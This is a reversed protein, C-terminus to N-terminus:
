AAMEELYEEEDNVAQQAAQKTKDIIEYDSFKTIKWWDLSWSHSVNWSLMNDLYKDMLVESEWHLHWHELEAYDIAKAMDLIDIGNKLFFRWISSTKERLAVLVDKRSGHSEILAAMMQGLMDKLIKRRHTEGYESYKGKTIANFEEKIEEWMFAWVDHNRFGWSQGMEMNKAAKYVHMGSTWKHKFSDTMWEKVTFDADANVLERFQNYYTKFTSNWEKQQWNEEHEDKEVFILKNLYGDEDTNWDNLFFLSRTLVKGYTDFFKITDDIKKSESVWSKKMNDYISQAAKWMGSYKSGTRAEIRKSLELITDNLINLDSTYSMFRTLPILLGQGQFGKLADSIKLSDFDYAIGSFAMVFPIKTMEEMTWWKKIVNEAWGIANPYTWGELENIGWDIRWQITREDASDTRGTEIEEEKWTARIRKVDKHIRSRREIGNYWWPKCQKVLLVYVLKEENFNEDSDEQEQKIQNYLKDWVKWGLATYWLFTGKYKQLWKKAYLTGYKELMFQVGASKKYQPADKNLLWKEIMLTAISSDVAKLKELYADENKKQAQEVRSKLDAKIDAPLFKGFVSQAFLASHEANWEKLYEEFSEIWQKFWMVIESISLNNFLKSMMSNHQWEPWESHKKSIDEAEKLSRPVLKNEVIYAHFFALSVTQSWKYVTYEDHRVKDEQWKVEKKTSKLKWYSFNVRTGDISNIKIMEESEWPLAALFPYSIKLDEKGQKKKIANHKFQFGWWSKWVKEDWQLEGMLESFDWNFKSTRKGKKEKFIKHFEQYSWKEESWNFNKIVIENDSMWTITFIGYNKRDKSDGLQFTTWMEMWFKAGAEDVKNIQKLLAEKNFVKAEEIQTDFGQRWVDEQILRDIQNNSYKRKWFSNKESELKKRLKKSYEDRDNAIKDYNINAYGEEDMKYDSTPMETPTLVQIKTVAMATDSDWFANDVWGWKTILGAFKQYSLTEVEWVLKEDYEEEWKSRFKIVGKKDDLDVIELFRVSSNSDQKGYEWKKTVSQTLAIVNWKRLKLLSESDLKKSKELEKKFWAVDKKGSEEVNSIIRDFEKAAKQLSEWESSVLKLAQKWTKVLESTPVIFDKNSFSNVIRKVKIEDVPEPNDNAQLWQAIANIKFEKAASKSLLKLKLAEELTITPIFINVFEVKEEDNFIDTGFIWSNVFLGQIDTVSFKYGKELKDLFQAVTDKDESSLKPYKKALNFKELHELINKKDIKKWFIEELKSSQLSDSDIYDQLDQKELKEIEIAVIQDYKAPSLDYNWLIKKRLEQRKNNLIVTEKTMKSLLDPYKILDLELSEFESIGSAYKKIEKKLWSNMSGAKWIKNMFAVGGGDPKHLQFDIFKKIFIRRERAQTEQRETETNEAAENEDIDDINEDNAGWGTNDTTMAEKKIIIEKIISCILVFHLIFLGRKISINEYLFISTDISLFLRM